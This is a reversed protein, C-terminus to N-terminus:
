DRGGGQGECPCRAQGRRAGRGGHELRAQKSGQNRELEQRQRGSSLTKDKRLEKDEPDGPIGDSDKTRLLKEAWTDEGPLGGQPGAGAHAEGPGVGRLM